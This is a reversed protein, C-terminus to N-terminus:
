LSVSPPSLSVGQQACRLVHLVCPRILLPGCARMCNIARKWAAVRFAGLRSILLCLTSFWAPPLKVCYFFDTASVSQRMLLVMSSCVFTSKLSSSIFIVHSSLYSLFSNRAFSFVLRRLGSLTQSHFSCSSHDRLLLLMSSEAVRFCVTTLSLRIKEQRAATTDAPWCMCSSAFTGRLLALLSLWPKALTEPEHTQVSFQPTLALGRLLTSAIRKCVPSLATWGRQLIESPEIHALRVSSFLVGTHTWPQLKVCALQRVVGAPM